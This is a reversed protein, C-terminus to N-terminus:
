EADEEHESGLVARMLRGKEFRLTLADEWPPMTQKTMFGTGSDDFEERYRFDPRLKERAQGITDNAAIGRPLRGAYAKCGSRADRLYLGVYHVVWAGTDGRRSQAILWLPQNTSDYYAEPHLSATKRADPHAPEAGDERRVLGYQGCMAAFETSDTRLEMMAYADELRLAAASVSNARTACGAYSIVALMCALPLALTLGVRIRGREM